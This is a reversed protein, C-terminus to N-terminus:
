NCEAISDYPALNPFTQPIRASTVPDLALTYPKGHGSPTRTAQTLM